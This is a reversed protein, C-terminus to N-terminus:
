LKKEQAFFFCFTIQLATLKRFDSVGRWERGPRLHLRSELSPRKRRGTVISREAPRLATPRLARSLEVRLSSPVIGGLWSPLLAPLLLFMTSGQAHVEKEEDRDGLLRRARKVLGLRPLSRRTASGADHCGVSSASDCELTGSPAVSASSPSLATVAAPEEEEGRGGGGGGGGGGRGGFRFL